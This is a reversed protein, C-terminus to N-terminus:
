RRRSRPARCGHDGSDHNGMSESVVSNAVTINPPPLLIEIHRDVPEAMADVAGQVLSKLPRNLTTEGRYDYPAMYLAAGYLDPTLETLKADTCYTKM